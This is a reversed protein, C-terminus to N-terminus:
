VQLMNRLGNQIYTRVRMQKTKSTYVSECVQRELEQLPVLIMQSPWAFVYLDIYM